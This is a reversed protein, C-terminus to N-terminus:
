YGGVLIKVGAPRHRYLYTQYVSSSSISVDQTLNSYHNNGPGGLTNNIYNNATSYTSSEGGIVNLFGTYNLSTFYTSPILFTLAYEENSYNNKIKNGSLPATALKKELVIVQDSTIAVISPNYTVVTKNVVQILINILSAVTGRAWISHGLINAVADARNNDTVTYNLKTGVFQALWPLAYNPCRNIDIIQSWGPAGGYNTIDVQGNVGINDRILNDLLDLPACNSFIFNYLTYGNAADKDQIFQPVTSYIADTNYSNGPTAM